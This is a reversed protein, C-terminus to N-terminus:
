RVGISVGGIAAEMRLRKRGSIFPRERTSGPMIKVVGNEAVAAAAAAISRFPHYFDGEEPGTWDFDKGSKM